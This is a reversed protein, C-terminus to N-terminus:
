QNHTDPVAPNPGQPLRMWQAHEEWWSAAKLGPTPSLPKRGRPLVTFRMGSQITPAKYLADGAVGM